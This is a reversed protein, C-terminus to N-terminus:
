YVNFNYNATFNTYFDLSTIFLKMSIDFCAKGYIKKIEFISIEHFNAFFPIKFIWFDYITIKIIFWDGTLETQQPSYFRM